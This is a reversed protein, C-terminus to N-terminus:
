IWVITNPALGSGNARCREDARSKVAIRQLSAGCRRDSMDSMAVPMAALEAIDEDDLAVVIVSQELHMVTVAAVPLHEPV